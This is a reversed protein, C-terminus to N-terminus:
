KQSLRRARQFVVIGALAAVAAGFMVGASLNSGTNSLKSTMNKHPAPPTQTGGQGAPHITQSPPQASGAQGPQTPPATNGSQAPPASNGSQAPPASDGSQAPQTTDPKQPPAPTSPASPDPAKGLAEQVAAASLVGSDTGLAAIIRRADEDTYELSGPREQEVPPTGQEPAPVPTVSLPASGVATLGDSSTVRVAITGTFPADFSHTLLGDTTTHDYTGDGNFDWEYKELTGNVAYSGRADLEVPEGIYATIPGQIWGFPKALATGLADNIFEPIEDVAAPRYIKGGTLAALETMTGASLNETDIGYIEVPDIEFALKAASAATYNTVPEPDKGPADGLVIMTKRVGPRWNLKLGEMVGSLVTEQIDGGGSAGIKDLQAELASVDSTFDLELRSPYDGAWGGGEPHDKYTVLAMRYSKAKKEVSNAIRQINERVTYIDDKMSGTADVAFVIDIDENAASIKEASDPIGVTKWVEEAIKLHGTINPHYFHHSDTTFNSQVTGNSLAIGETEFFENIWRQPNRAGASPDPEHGAFAAPVSSVYTAKLGGAANWENVLQQQVQVAEEGLKRVERGTHMVFYEACDGADRHTCSLRVTDRTTALLPYASLVIEAEPDLREQLKTFIQRTKAKVEPLKARAAKINTDCEQADGVVAAFCNKVIDDFGVDNGGITMLVLDTNRPVLNIQTNLVDDSVNGSYALNTFTAKVGQGNLWRTYLRGWNRLSRYSTKDAGPEYQGAGNGASYSDGLHVISIKRQESDGAPDAAYTPLASALILGMVTILTVPMTRRLKKVRSGKQSNPKAQVANKTNVCRLESIRRETKSHSCLGSNGLNKM